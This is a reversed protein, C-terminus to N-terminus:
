LVYCFFSKYFQIYSYYIGGFIKDKSWFHKMEPKYDIGIIIEAARVKIFDSCTILKFLNPEPHHTHNDNISDM